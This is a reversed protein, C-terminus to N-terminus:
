GKVEVEFECCWVFPNADHPYGKKAWKDNWYDHVAQWFRVNDCGDVLPGGGHNESTIGELQWQEIKTSWLREVWVRKVKLSIRSAWRPMTAPSQWGQKRGHM